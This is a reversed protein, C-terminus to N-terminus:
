CISGIFGGLREASVLVTQVSLEQKSCICLVCGNHESLFFDCGQERFRDHAFQPLELENLRDDMGRGSCKVLGEKAAWLRTFMRDPDSGTEILLLEGESMVVKALSREYKTIDQIDIGVENSSVICAAGMDCHSLNFFLRPHERLFPKGHEGAGLELPLRFSGPENHVGLLLLGYAAACLRKDKEFRYADYRRKRSDPMLSYIRRLTDSDLQEHEFCLYVADSM